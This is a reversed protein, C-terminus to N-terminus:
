KDDKQRSEIEFVTMPLQNYLRGLIPKIIKLRKNLKAFDNPYDYFFKNESEMMKQFEDKSFNLKKIVYNKLDELKEETDFPQKILETAKEKTIAGSVIQASLNIIRKDIGFKKPLWYAMTFKTFLNEHHHGGYDKWGYSSELLDRAEQKNYPLYYFPRVQTIRNIFKYKVLKELKLYPHTKLKVGDGFKQHVHKFLKHDSYTWERPQKGESRFDNGTFIYKIKEKAAVKYLVGKIASDTPTDIWPLAARMFARKLSKIEDYNVVYTELDIDLISTVSKINQVAIDSNWGNDLNVALPNLNYKIKLLYLLYSSDVGGSVGVICDYISKKKKSKLKQIITNWTEIGSEGRVFTEELKKQLYYYNSVGEKDFSIGPVTTDWLGYKCQKYM